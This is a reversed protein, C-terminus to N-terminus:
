QMEVRNFSVFSLHDEHMGYIAEWKESGQYVEKIFCLATPDLAALNDDPMLYTIEERNLEEYGPLVGNDDKGNELLSRGGSLYLQLLAQTSYLKGKVQSAVQESDLLGEQSLYTTVNDLLQADMILANLESCELASLSYQATLQQKIYSIDSYAEKVMAKRAEETYGNILDLSPNPLNTDAIVNLCRYRMTIIENEYAQEILQQSSLTDIYAEDKGKGILLKKANQPSILTADENPTLTVVPSESVIPVDTEEPAQTSVAELSETPKATTNTYTIGISNSSRNFINLSFSDGFFFRWMGFSVASVAVIGVLSLAIVKFKYKTNYDM